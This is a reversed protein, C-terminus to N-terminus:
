FRRSYGVLILYDAFAADGHHNNRIDPVSRTRNRRVAIPVSLSWREKGRTYIIGPEVSIAYGPRRFGDSSGILDTSPVGEGRIAMSWALSRVKPFPFLAGARYLYQDAVSMVDEFPRSRGTRVGNTVRPNILYVGTAFLTTSKIAKYAQFDLVIGYGGDGPQISQDVARTVPGDLTFVTDTVGSRGTPFKVGVGFAVNQRSESPPRLLWMRGVVSIDGIGRASTVQDPTRENFRKAFLIPVSATISFRPTVEYTVAVDLLHIKNNVETRQEEREHQEETGVFHRHSHQYRYGISIQWREPSFWPLGSPSPTDTM